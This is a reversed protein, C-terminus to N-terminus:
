ELIEGNYAKFFMEEYTGEKKQKDTYVVRWAPIDDLEKTDKEMKNESYGIDIDKIAINADTLNKLLVQYLPMVDKGKSLSGLTRYRCSLYVSGEVGVRVSVKNKYVWFGKYKQRYVFEKDEGNKTLYDFKFDKLPIDLEKLKEQLYKYVDEERDLKYGAEEAQTNEYSFACESEFILRKGDAELESENEMDIQKYKDGFFNKIVANRDFEFKTYILKGMKKNYRKLHSESVTIGRENLVKVTDRITGASINGSNLINVLIVSLFINLFAFLFILINKAKSWDM